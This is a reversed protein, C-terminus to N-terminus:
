FRIRADEYLLDSLNSLRNNVIAAVVIKKDYLKIEELIEELSIGKAFNYDKGAIKAKIM